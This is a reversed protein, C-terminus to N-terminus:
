LLPSSDVDGRSTELVTRTEKSGALCVLTSNRTGGRDETSIETRLTPSPKENIEITAVSAVTNVVDAMVAKYQEAEGIIKVVLTELVHSSSM